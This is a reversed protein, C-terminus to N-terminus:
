VVGFPLGTVNDFAHLLRDGLTSATALLSPDRRGRLQYASVLSGLYRITYEFVHADWNKLFSVSGIQKVIRESLEDLGMLIATDLADHLVCGFGGWSDNTRNSLPRIEDHGWAHRAYGDMSHLFAARIRESESSGLCLALVVSCCVM